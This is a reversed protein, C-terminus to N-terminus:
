RKSDSRKLDLMGVRQFTALKRIQRLFATLAKATVVTNPSHERLHATEQKFNTLRALEANASKLDTLMKPEIPLSADSMESTNLRKLKEGSLIRDIKKIEVNIAEENAIYRLTTDKIREGIEAIAEFSVNGPSAYRIKPIKLAHIGPIVQALQAFLNFRSYGGRWPSRLRQELRAATTTIFGPTMAYIFSYIARYRRFLAEFDGSFWDGKIPLKFSTPAFAKHVDVDDTLTPDFYSDTTPLYDKLEGFPVERLYRKPRRIKDRKTARDEFEGARVELVFVRDSNQLAKRLTLERAVYRALDERNVSFILWRDKGLNDTDVWLKLWNQRGDSYLALISFEVHILDCIYHHSDLVDAAQLRTGTLKKM